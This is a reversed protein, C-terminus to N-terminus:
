EVPLQGAKWEPFGDELRRARYGRKRLEEVAEFALMCYPGRCYAVIELDQPLQNLREPLSGLPFNVAGHIHGAQYESPPRVDIVVAEGSKVLALLEERRVPTLNDRSEFNERVIREVEASHNEAIRQIGSVVAIVRDDTLSYIVQTGEKRSKVLGSDRMIHLHHSANAFPIGTAKVLGDVSREGQALAELLELRNANALAKAVRSFQEFLKKKPSPPQMPSIDTLYKLTVVNYRYDM